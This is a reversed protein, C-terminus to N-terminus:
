HDTLTIAADIIVGVRTRPRVPAVENRLFACEVIGKKEIKSGPIPVPEEYVRTGANKLLADYAEDSMVWYYIEAEAVEKLTLKLVVTPPDQHPIDQYTVPDTPDPLGQRPAGYFLTDFWERAKLLDTVQYAITSM